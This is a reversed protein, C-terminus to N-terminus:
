RARVEAADDDWLRSSGQAHESKPTTARAERDAARLEEAEEADELKELEVMQMNCARRRLRRERRARLRHRRSMGAAFNRGTPGLVVVTGGTMYECGHDGVAEVVANVGSNRVAFREGAMGRIFVEGSPRATSRSTASSSTRRPPSPPGEAAPLVIIKGGSVPGQRRLRQRRRRTRLTMGNPVFAGFSQGASGNFKLQITDEPLGQPATSRRSRTASHDHRRRPQHEHDAARGHGERRARDGARLPRAAHTIDLSKDLGHDQASRASAASKRARRGARLPHQSLDLGKAKWHDIAHKRSSCTPAASWKTRDHPLRAAGHDRARGARHVEHLERRARARRHVERAAASGAHRRRGPLHQPPLRADHHLRARRAARHRLRIGRRRAARRHGRRPRDEAPRRDRRRHPLPSQQARADPADRRPRTGVAPRRAQHSTLPSAGTGGDYGSILVVDAHAKAVGAAITGVGVEAVLKVSIRADRNANKLDHILEALDEISYIDHHPPPSILGVGPTSHRSEERDVSLGEHRAAPRRRRAERGAGDQDATGERQRPLPQHRRLPGVRGAQDRQEELRRENTWTYREPDEGGEGTNSKGGIRNMAIALTEHAEKSISGYSMAGTKFRKVIAEVSEVEEIPIPTASSSISCAACRASSSREAREVLEAYHKYTTTAAPACRRRCRTSSRRTSCTRKATRAGSTSAARRRAHRGNVQRDPVRAIHRM